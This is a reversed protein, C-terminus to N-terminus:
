FARDEEQPLTLTQMREKAEADKANIKTFDTAEKFISTPEKKEYVIPKYPGTTQILSSLAASFKQQSMPPTKLLSLDRQVVISKGDKDVEKNESQPDAYKKLYDPRISFLHTNQNYDVFPLGQYTTVIDGYTPDKVIKLVGAVGGVFPVIARGNAGLFIILHDGVSLGPAGEVILGEGEQENSIFGGMQRIQLVGKAPTAGFFTKLVTTDIYSYIANGDPARKPNIANVKIEYVGSVNKLKSTYDLKPFQYAGVSVHKSAKSSTGDDSSATGNSSTTDASVMIYGTATECTAEDDVHLSGFIMRNNSGRTESVTNDPDIILGIHYNTGYTVTSPVTLTTRSTYDKEASVTIQSSAVLIDSSTIIDNISFYYEADVTTKSTGNNLTTKTVYFTDGPCFNGFKYYSDGNEINDFTGHEVIFNSLGMDTETSSGPYYARLGQRDDPLPIWPNTGPHVGCIDTGSSLMQGYDSTHGLGLAHGIEHIITGRFFEEDDNYYDPGIAYRCIEGNTPDPYTRSNLYDPLGYFWDEDVSIFIDAETLYYGYSVNWGYVVFTTAMATTLVGGGDLVSGDVFGVESIGDGQQFVGDSNSSTGYRINLPAGVINEWADLSDTLDDYRTSGSPFSNTSIYIKDTEDNQWECVSTLLSNDSGCTNTYTQGHLPMLLFIFIVPFLILRKM